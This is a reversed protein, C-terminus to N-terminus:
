DRSKAKWVAVALVAIFVVAMVLSTWRSGLKGDELFHGHSISVGVSVCNLLAAIGIIWALIKTNQMNTGPPFYVGKVISAITQFGITVWLVTLAVASPRMWDGTFELLMSLLLLLILAFALSYNAIKGRTRLQREDFKGEDM